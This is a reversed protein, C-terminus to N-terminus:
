APRGFGHPQNVRIERIDRSPTPFLLQCGGVSLAALLILGAIRLRKV